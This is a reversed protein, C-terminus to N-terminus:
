AVGRYNALAWVVTLNLAIIMISWVPYYPLFAFQALMSLSALTVGVIRAWTMGYLVGLGAGAILVGLLIHVWGWTSLDLGYLYGPEAEYIADSLLAAVGALVGWGGAVLMAVGAFVAFGVAWTSSGRPPAAARSEAQTSM